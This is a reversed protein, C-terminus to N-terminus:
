AGPRTHGQRHWREFLMKLEAVKEPEKAYLNTTEQPDRMLNYLQGEPEGPGPKVQAPKTFGGTGLGFILKWEGQRVAFLGQGSQLILGGRGPAKEALLAPLLDFSDEAMGPELKRGAATSLTAFLDVLCLTENAVRGPPIRGPWRAVFPVRHGAEHIDSKQGRWPRNARHGGSAQIDPESWPAGNDSTVIVLTNKAGGSKDIAALIRAVSADVQQVFDGYLGVKARGLFERSPVWPTHPAPLPVYAFYPQRSKRIFSEARDVIKPLVEDMKFGPAIPGGRWFAGRPPAGSDGITATPQEVARRGDMYLYPPMDLSAPIGFFEDFGQDLPSPNQEQAYDVKEATGLGLHWKGFVGTRYGVAKLHSAITPRGTEILAPSYGNLVGQKLRSRWCYRGTLLGYRTPTCVASPSHADTFRVGERAIRDIAPTRITSESNYCGVDGYGLDDALVVVINPLPAAYALGPLSALLARRTLLPM